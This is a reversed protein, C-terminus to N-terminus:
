HRGPPRRFRLGLAILLLVIGLLFLALLWFFGQQPLVPPNVENAAVILLHLGIMFAATLTSFGAGFGALSALAAPRAPGALWQERHPINVLRPAFGPLWVMSLLLALPLGVVMALMFLVYGDRSMWGNARGAAGFHTAVPDPLGASTAVIAVAAVVVLFITAFLSVRPM